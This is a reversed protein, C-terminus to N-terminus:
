LADNADCVAVTITGTGAPVVHDANGDFSITTSRFNVMCQTPTVASVTSFGNSDICFLGGDSTPTLAAEAGDVTGGGTFSQGYGTDRHLIVDITYTSGTVCVSIDILNTSTGMNAPERFLFYCTTTTQAHTPSTTQANTPSTTQANTPSTTQAHIPLIVTNVVPKKWVAGAGAIGAVSLGKLLERRKTM